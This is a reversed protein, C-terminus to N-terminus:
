DPCDSLAATLLCCREPGVTAAIHMSHVVDAFLVTVRKYEASPTAQTLRTGCEGGFKSNPPLETGCSGCVVGTTTM